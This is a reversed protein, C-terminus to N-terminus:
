GRPLTSRGQASLRSLPSSRWQRNRAPLPLSERLRTTRFRLPSSLMERKKTTALICIVGVLSEL